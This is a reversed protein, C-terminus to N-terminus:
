NAVTGLFESAFFNGLLSGLPNTFASVAVTV